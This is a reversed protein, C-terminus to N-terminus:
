LLLTKVPTDQWPSSIAQCRHVGRSVNINSLGCLLFIMFILARFTNLPLTFFTL